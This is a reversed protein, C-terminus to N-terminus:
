SKFQDVFLIHRDLAIIRQEIEAKQAEYPRLANEKAARVGRRQDAALSPDYWALNDSFKGDGFSGTVGFLGRKGASTSATRAEQRIAAMTTNLERKRVQLQKREQRFRNLIASKDALTKPGFEAAFDILKNLQGAVEEFQAIESRASTVWRDLVSIRAEVDEEASHDGAMRKLLPRQSFEFKARDLSRVLDAREQLVPEIQANANEIASRIGSSVERTRQEWDALGDCTSLLALEAALEDYRTRDSPNM